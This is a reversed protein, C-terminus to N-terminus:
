VIWFALVSGFRIYLNCVPSKWSPCPPHVPAHQSAEQTLVRTSSRAQLPARDITIETDFARRPVKEACSMPTPCGIGHSNFCNENPIHQRRGCAASALVLLIRQLRERRVHGFLRGMKIVHLCGPSRAHSRTYDCVTCACEYSLQQHMRGLGCSNGLYCFFNRQCLRRRM